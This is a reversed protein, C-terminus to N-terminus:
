ETVQRQHAQQLSQSKTLKAILQRVMRERTAKVSAADEDGDNRSTGAVETATDTIASPPSIQDLM